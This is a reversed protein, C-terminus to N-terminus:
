QAPQPVLASAPVLVIGRGALARSWTALREIAMPRLPGALGLATGRERAVRELAALKAELEARGPPDDVVLDVARSALGPIAPLIGGPRPDVYLLGRKAVEELVPKMMEAQEAYREGRLGNLAGTAGVYGQIRTLAWELNNRNQAADAGTLLSRTGADALPFGLPEMPISILFEHGTARARDALSDLDGGYPSFALTVPGALADMAARSDGTSAGFGAVILGIRPRGAADDAPRAYVTRSARGDTAVRPLAAPAFAASVELLSQDPRAIEATPAPPPAPGPQAVPEAPAATQPARALPGMYDLAGAGIAALLIIFAWFLGLVRWGSM